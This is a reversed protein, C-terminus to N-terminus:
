TSLNTLCIQLQTHYEWTSLVIVYSQDCSDFSNLKLIKQMEFIRGIRVKEKM